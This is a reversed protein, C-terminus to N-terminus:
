PRGMYTFDQIQQIGHQNAESRRAEREALSKQEYFTSIYKNKISAAISVALNMSMLTRFATTTGEFVFPEIRKKVHIVTIPDHTYIIDGVMTYRLPTSNDNFGTIKSYTFKTIMSYCLPYGIDFEVPCPTPKFLTLLFTWDIFDATRLLESEWFARILIHSKSPREDNRDINLSHVPPLNNISLAYNAVDTDHHM